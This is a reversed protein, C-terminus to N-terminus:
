WPEAAGLSGVDARSGDPDLDDPPGADRLPSGAAPTLDWAAAFPASTDTYLPDLSFTGEGLVLGCTAPAVDSWSVEAVGSPGDCGADTDNHAFATGVLSLAAGEEAHADGGEAAGARRVNGTVDAQRVTLTAGDRASLHGRSTGADGARQANGAWVLNTLVATGGTVVLGSVDGVGMVTADVSTDVVRTRTMAVDTGDSWMVACTDECVITDGDITLDTTTVTGGDHWLTSAGDGDVASGALQNSRFTTRTMTADTDSTAVIGWTDASTYVCAASAFGLIDEFRVDTLDVTTETAYVAAGTMSAACTELRSATLMLSIDEFTVDRVSLPGAVGFIGGYLDIEADSPDSVFLEVDRMAGGIWTFDTGATTVLGGLQASRGAEFTAHLDSVVVDEFRIHGTDALILGGPEGYTWTADTVETDYLEFTADDITALAGAGDGLGTLRVGQIRVEANRNLDFLPLSAGEGTLVAGEDGIIRVEGGVLRLHIPWTGAPVCVIGDDNAAIAADVADNVTPADLGVRRGFDITGDCDDDVANCVEAAAPHIAEDTDDCDTDDLTRDAVVDCRRDGTSPDGFDDGDFDAYTLTGDIPDEDIAGDCDDDGGNCVEDAGPRRAADGDDCDGPRGVAGTPAACASTLTAADGYGDGDADAYWPAAAGVAPDADDCDIDEPVGDGDVDAPAYAASDGPEPTETCALLLLWLM